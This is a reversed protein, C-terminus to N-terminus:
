RVSMRPSSWTFKTVDSRPALAGDRLGRRVFLTPVPANAAIASRTEGLGEKRWNDSLGIVLLGAGAAAAIVGERGPEAILPEASVGAFQQLVLSASALVRSADAEGEGGRAGLLRLPAGTATGLWAALELAAWDHEAGGFPVIIAADPGPTVVAEDRAVLVAVDCPARALVSGVDGRPVGGGLLPRRGDVLVLDVEEREALKALDKGAEVSTFAVARAPVKRARLERRVREVEASAEALRMDQSQLGGRIEGGRPPPVLKAIIVERPPESTALPEALALLQPLAAETQPAVLISREPTPPAGPEAAARDLEAEVPEGLEGKPDLLNLVPGAMFTTILAMLVLAAFLAESIVGKELALNLVILETLGRTNMLTGLVASDRWGIGTIRAALLTGGFKCVIAVVVLVVTILILESRDILLVNTKLGTFAFFLPLLLLVVMDEIRRTVDETLGAKRPMIAGMVFAGFILAIGIQETTFAAVLIGAFIATIWAVPVRGAEDYAVSVRALLPRVALGMVAVFAIALVITQAVKGAGGSTAVATALAILFWASIDDIAASALALAGIPRKLMRREVLIRALVPFATISMAVGMFLAFATFGGKSQPGVLKYIPVAIALGAMMPVAVGTNSIAATQLLRGRLQSLDIELGVLFMYFVLGLNAVIGIFPIVDSPFIARQLDPAILGLVTPGLLIGALVEGMVRPQRLRAVTAGMLRAFLMVVVVALLFAAVGKSFERQEAADIRELPKGTKPDVGPAFVAITIDRNLAQGSLTAKSGDACTVPGALKGTGREYTLAGQTSRKGKLDVQSGDGKMEFGGSLCASRPLSKYTGAVNTPPRPRLQGQAPPDRKFEALLPKGALTGALTVQGPKVPVAIPGSAGSLCKVTGTLRGNRLRVRGAVTGDPRQLAVFQGSQRVDVQPGLCDAGAAVDYGGAIAPQAKEGSGASFVVIAVAVVAALLVAYYAILRRNTASV